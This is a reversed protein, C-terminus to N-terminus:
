SNEDKDKNINLIKAFLMDLDEGKSLKVNRVGEKLVQM